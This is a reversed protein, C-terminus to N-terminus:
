EVSIVGRRLVVAARHPSAGSAVMAKLREVDAETWKSTINRMKFVKWRLPRRFGGSFVILFRPFQFITGLAPRWIALSVLPKEQFRASRNRDKGKMIKSPFPWPQGLGEYTRIPDIADKSSTGAVEAKGRM